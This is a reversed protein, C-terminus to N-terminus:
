LHDPPVWFDQTDVPPLQPLSDPLTPFLPREEGSAMDYVFPVFRAGPGIHVDRIFTFGSGDPLWIPATGGLRTLQVPEEGELSTLFIQDAHGERVSFVVRSDHPNLDGHLGSGIETRSLRTVWDWERTAFNYYALNGDLPGPTEGYKIGLAYRDSAGLSASEFYTILPGTIAGTVVDVTYLGREFTQEFATSWVSVLTRRGDAFWDGAHATGLDIKTGEIGTLQRSADTELDFAFAYQDIGKLVTHSLRKGEPAWRPGGTIISV